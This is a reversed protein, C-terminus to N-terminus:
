GKYDFTLLSCIRASFLTFALGVLLIGYNIMEEQLSFPNGFDLHQESGPGHTGNYVTVGMTHMTHAGYESLGGLLVMVIGVLRVILIAVRMIAINPRTGNALGEADPIMRVESDATCTAFKNQAM